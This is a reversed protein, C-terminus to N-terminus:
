RRVIAAIFAGASAALVLYLALTFRGRWNAAILHRPCAPCEIRRPPPALPVGEVRCDLVSPGQAICTLREGREPRRLQLDTDALAVDVRSSDIALRWVLAARSTDPRAERYRIVEVPYTQTVTVTDPPLFLTDPAASTWVTDPPAHIITPPPAPEAITVIRTGCGGLMSALLVLAIAYMLAVILRTVIRRARANARRRPSYRAILEDTRM